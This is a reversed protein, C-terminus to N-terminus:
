HQSVAQDYRVRGISIRTYWHHIHHMALCTNLLEDRNSIANLQHTTEELRQTWLRRTCCEGQWMKFKCSWSIKFTVHWATVHHFNLLKQEPLYHLHWLPTATRLNHHRNIVSNFRTLGEFEGSSKCLTKQFAPKSIEPVLENNSPTMCVQM